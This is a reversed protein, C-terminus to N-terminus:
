RSVILKVADRLHEITISLACRSTRSLSSRAPRNYEQVEHVRNTFKFDASNRDTATPRKEQNGTGTYDFTWLM